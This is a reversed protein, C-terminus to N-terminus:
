REAAHAAIPQNIDENNVKGACDSCRLNWGDTTWGVPLGYMRQRGVAGCEGCKQHELARERAIARANEGSFGWATEHDQDRSM